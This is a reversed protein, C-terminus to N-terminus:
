KLAKRLTSNLIRSYSISKPSKIIEKAQLTRLKKDLDEDIMVTVRKSM